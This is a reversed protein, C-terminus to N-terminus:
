NAPAGWGLRPLIVALKGRVIDKEQGTLIGAVLIAALYVLSFAIGCAMLIFLPKVGQLPLRVLEAVAGALIAAAALKGL